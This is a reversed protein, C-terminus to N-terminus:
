EVGRWRAAGGARWNHLVFGIIGDAPGFGGRGPFWSSGVVFWLIAFCVWDCAGM